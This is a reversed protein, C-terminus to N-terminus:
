VTHRRDTIARLICGQGAMTTLKEHIKLCQECLARDGTELGKYLYKMLVNSSEPSMGELAADVDRVALLVKRVVVWNSVKCSDDRTNLPPDALAAKLADPIRSISLLKDVQRCKKEIRELILEPLEVELLIDTEAGGAEDDDAM